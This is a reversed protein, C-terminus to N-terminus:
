KVVVPTTVNTTNALMRTTNAAATTTNAAPTAAKAPASSKALPCDAGCACGLENTVRDPTTMLGKSTACVLKDILDYHTDLAIAKAYTLTMKFTKGENDKATVVTPKASGYFHADISM